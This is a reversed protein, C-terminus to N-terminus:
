ETEKNEMNENVFEKFKERLAAVCKYMEVHTCGKCDCYKCFFNSVTQMSLRDIRKILHENM